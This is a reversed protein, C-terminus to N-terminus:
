FGHIKINDKKVLGAQVLFTSVNKRQDGQLQIVQGLESDQVVTGNCCFEKKLDKLIKTYSYEKKLGQVTTLSKRGNRQQVRIHVYEKTGAGAGADEANADAFPDFATPVQVELDSMFRPQFLPAFEVLISSGSTSTNPNRRNPNYSLFSFGINKPYFVAETQNPLKISTINLTLVQTTAEWDELDDSSIKNDKKRKRFYCQQLKDAVEM